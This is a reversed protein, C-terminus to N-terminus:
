PVVQILGATDDASTAAPIVPQSSELSELESVVASMRASVDEGEVLVVLPSQVGGFEDEVLQYAARQTSAPDDGGPVSLTSRLSLAPLAVVVLALVGITISLVRRETVLGAWRDIVSITHAAPEAPSGGALQERQRRSLARAGMGRLMAPLFTLAMAVAVAVSFAAAVGMETIFPIGVVSLGALAIIVTAGAFLVSSGASGVARGIAADVDRGELLESRFRALVFFCYDIGVALGLMVALIPTVSGIPAFIGVSFIGLVGVAVGVLAGLMNAGAAVLSGFTLLLVLFAVLAGVAESPGLIDPLEHSLSGGVEAVVGQARLEDAIRTVERTATEEEAASDLGTFTVTVVATTGDASVYPSSPDYPDSVASASALALLEDRADGVLTRGLGATVGAEDRVVLQLTGTDEPTEPQPFKEELLSLARSSETGPVDFGSSEGAPPKAFGLVAAGAFVLAVLGWVIFVPM